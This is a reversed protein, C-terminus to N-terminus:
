VTEEVRASDFAHYAWHQDPAVKMVPLSKTSAWPNCATKLTLNVYIKSPYLSKDLLFREDLDAFAQNPRQFWSFWAPFGSKLNAIEELFNLTMKNQRANKCTNAPFIATLKSLGLSTWNAVMAPMKHMILERFWIRLSRRASSRKTQNTSRITWFFSNFQFILHKTVFFSGEVWDDPYIKPSCSRYAASNHSLTPYDRRPM